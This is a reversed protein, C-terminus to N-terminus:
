SRKKPLTFSFTSGENVKSTVWIKGEHAEIIQKVLPLGLGTGKVKENVPNDVRYFEEFINDLNKQSIGIGSDSISVEVFDTDNKAAITIRAKEPTFKIANSLLNIFVREIQSSDVLVPSLDKPTQRILDIQKEKLQPVLLDSIAEILELLNLKERKMTVRGSEIRSIDLLENILKVLNDSHRNIKSLREKVTDPIEGMVGSMLISAYGKISTLPTRLEHSVASVFDSKKKSIKKVEELLDGLEKTREKVKLELDHHSRYVEEFLRANEISQGLQTAFISILEEDGETLPTAQSKNGVFMLGLIGDQTLIPCIIFYAVDFMHSIKNRNSESLGISSILKGEGLVETFLNDTTIFDKHQSLEKESYGLNMKWSFNKNKDLILIFGRQFGLEIILPKKIRNFIEAEDLTTSILQSIKQLTYLGTVKKDLEEQTKNLELDTKVILKAQEDLEDFASKLKTLSAQLKKIKELKNLLVLVLCVAVVLSSFGILNFITDVNM